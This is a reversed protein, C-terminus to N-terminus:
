YALLQADKTGSTWATTALRYYGRPLGILQTLGIVTTAIQVVTASNAFSVPIWPTGALAEAQYELRITMNGTGNLVIGLTDGSLLTFAASTQANATFAQVASTRM